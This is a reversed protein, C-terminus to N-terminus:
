PAFRYTTNFILEIKQTVFVRVKIKGHLPDAPVARGEIRREEKDSNEARGTFQVVEGRGLKALDDNTLTISLSGHENSFFYPFVKAKYDATYIEGSRRLTSLTLSVNGVYISTKTPEVVVTNYDRPAAKASFAAFAVVISILVARFRDMGASHLPVAAEGTPLEIHPEHADVLSARRTCRSDNM